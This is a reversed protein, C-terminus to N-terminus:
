LIDQRDHVQKRSPLSTHHTDSHKALSRARERRGRVNNPVDHLDQPVKFPDTTTAHESFRKFVHQTRSSRSRIDVGKSFTWSRQPLIRVHQLTGYRTATDSHLTHLHTRQASLQESRTSSGGEIRSLPITNPDEVHWTFRSHGTLARCKQM